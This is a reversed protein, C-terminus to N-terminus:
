NAEIIIANENVPEEFGAYYRDLIEDTVTFAANADVKSSRKKLRIKLTKYNVKLFVITCKIGFGEILAKYKQRNARSWFSYDIVLSQKQKLCTILQQELQHEAKKQLGPYQEPSYDIGYRGFEKWIYEDISLRKFGIDVLQKALTTKGSGAIGCMLYVHPENTDVTDLFTQVNM